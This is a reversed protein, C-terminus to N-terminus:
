EEDPVFPKTVQRNRCLRFFLFFLLLTAALSLAILGAITTAGFDEYEGSIRGQQSLWSFVVASGNNVFHAFVPLWLSGSWYFMYGFMVGLLMRPIFGYFQMHLASFLAASIFIAIHINRTMDALLRQILGRFILEEGIAPLFAIMALNFLFSSPSPMKLFADTLKAAQDESDKMWQEIGNLFAPLKMGENIAVLWNILPLSAFMIVLAIIWLQWESSRNLRLFGAANGQFFYGALFAPIIFMGISQIVQFYELVRLTKPNDLDNLVNMIDGASIGFLPGALLVGILVSAAFCSIVLLLSFLLRAFPTLGALLPPKRYDM